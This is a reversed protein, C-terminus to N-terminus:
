LLMFVNVCASDRRNGGAADRGLRSSSFFGSGGTEWGGSGESGKLVCAAVDVVVEESEIEEISGVAVGIVDVSGASAISIEVDRSPHFLHLLLKLFCSSSLLFLFSSFSLFFLSVM